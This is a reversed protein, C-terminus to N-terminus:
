IRSSQSMQVNLIKKAIMRGEPSVGEVVAGTISSPPWPGSPMTGFTHRVVHISVTKTKKVEAGFGWSM